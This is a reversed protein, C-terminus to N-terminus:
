EFRCRLPPVKGGYTSYTLKETLLILFGGVGSNEICSRHQAVRAGPPGGDWTRVFRFKCSFWVIISSLVFKFPIVTRISFLSLFTLKNSGSDADDFGSIRPLRTFIVIILDAWWSFSNHLCLPLGNM